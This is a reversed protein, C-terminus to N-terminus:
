VVRIRYNAIYSTFTEQRQIPGVSYYITVDIQRLTIPSTPRDPDVLDTVVIERQMGIAPQGDDSNGAIGDAGWGDDATGVIGDKGATPYINQKGAVFIAGPVAANGVNGVAEWKFTELDRATFISEVTSSAIQKAALAEQSRTTMNIGNTIAGVLAMVGILLIAVAIMVDIYSFGAEQTKIRTM